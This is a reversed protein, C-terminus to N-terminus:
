VTPNDRSAFMIIWELDTAIEMGLLSEFFERSQAPDDSKINPVARKIPM